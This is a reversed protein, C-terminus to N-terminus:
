APLVPAVIAPALVPAVIVPAVVPAPVAAVAPVGAILSPVAPAVVPATSVVPVAVPAVTAPAVVPAAVPGAPAVVPAAVPLALNGGGLLLQLASGQYDLASLIKEQLKNKSQAPKGDKADYTGEIKLSEWGALTPKSWFFAKYLEAPADPIGYPLKTVPDLPPLFSKLDMRSVIVTPEAKSKPEHVIKVLWKQTLLAGFSKATGKWNLAKFLLFAKAKENRSVAMSYPRVVYPSGDENSYGQGTLAFGLAIEMAPEKAKGQYEQPHNGFEIYEVLQAFAYGEPLLRGGGGGKVAENMDIGSEAEAAIALALLEQVNQTM